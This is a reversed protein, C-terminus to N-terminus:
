AGPQPKEQNATDAPLDPTIRGKLGYLGRLRRGCGYSGWPARRRGAREYAQALEPDKLADAVYADLEDM